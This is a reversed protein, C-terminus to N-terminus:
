RCDLHCEGDAEPPKDLIPHEMAAPLRRYTGSSLVDIATVLDYSPEEAFKLGNYVNYIQNASQEYCFEHYNMM